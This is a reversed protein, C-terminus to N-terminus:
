FKVNINFGFNRTPPLSAIEFAQAYDNRSFSGEPNFGPTNKHLFFLDRGVLSIKVSKLRLSEVWQKPLTYGLSLERFKVYTGDYM